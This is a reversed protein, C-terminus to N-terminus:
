SRLDDDFRARLLKGRAFSVNLGFRGVEKWLLFYQQSSSFSEAKQTHLFDVCLPPQKEKKKAVNVSNMKHALCVKQVTGLRSDNGRFGTM